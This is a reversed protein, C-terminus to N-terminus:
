FNSGKPMDDYMASTVTVGDGSNTQVYISAAAERETRVPRLEGNVIIGKRGPGEGEVVFKKEYKKVVKETEPSVSGANDKDVLTWPNFMWISDFWNQRLKQWGDPHLSDRGRTGWSNPTSIYKGKSDIGFKGFYICHGWDARNPGPPQPEFGGWTGNNTGEVGGVVGHNDRIAMAFMDMNQAAMFTRYEKAQLVKALADMEPTKWTKLKMFAETPPQGNNYSPVVSERLSGWNVFLKAGDRIYAGGGSLGLQIQSYIAKASQEDYFGEEVTNLVAGYYAWGQGVCSGSGDQNKVPLKFSLEREIDFGKEWDVPEGAAAVEEYRFDRPDVPDKLAGTGMVKKRKFFNFM